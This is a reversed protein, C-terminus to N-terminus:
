GQKTMEGAQTATEGTTVEINFIRDSCKRNKKKLKLMESSVCVDGSV